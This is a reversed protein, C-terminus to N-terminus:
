LGIGHQALARFFPGFIAEPPAGFHTEFLRSEGAPLHRLHGFLCIFMENFEAPGFPAIDESPHGALRPVFANSAISIAQPRNQMLSIFWDRRIEFRRFSEAIRTLVSWLILRCRPDDYFADWSFDLREKKRVDALIDVCRAALEDRADGLVLHLFSFYNVLMDRSLRGDALAGSLPHTMLRHFPDGRKLKVLDEEAAAVLRRHTEEVAQALQPSALYSQVIQHMQRGDFSTGRTRDDSWALFDSFLRDVLRHLELHTADSM